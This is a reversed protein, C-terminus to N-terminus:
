AVNYLTLRSADSVKGDADCGFAFDVLVARGVDDLLVNDLRVDRHYLGVNHLAELAFLVQERSDRGVRAAKLQPHPSQHTM